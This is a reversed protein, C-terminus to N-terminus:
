PDIDSTVLPNAAIREAVASAELRQSPIPGILGLHNRVPMLYTPIAGSLTMAHEVSKHCNRDCLAIQNRTVSAMLIVRNSTSSGNTVFYTRDAGFIRAANREAEGIPGSHDLLSGLEGVSISLDSRFLEEGFFELFARGAPHKLFATGGEHGPTHWSYEYTRAFEALAKFMPPLLTARYRDIAAVVRGGLFEPTDELLWVYDNIEALVDAPIDAISGSSALLFIPLATARSRVAAIVARADSHQKAGALNWDVLVAQLLSHVRIQAKAEEQSAAEVLDIDRDRLADVLAATARMGAREGAAGDHVVLVRRRYLIGPANPRTTCADASM